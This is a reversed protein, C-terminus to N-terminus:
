PCSPSLMKQDSEYNFLDSQTFRPSLSPFFSMSPHTVRRCDLHLLIVMQAHQCPDPISVLLYGRTLPSSRQPASIARM